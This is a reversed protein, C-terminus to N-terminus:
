SAAPRCIIALMTATASRVRLPNMEPSSEITMDGRVTMAQACFAVMKPPSRAKAKRTENRLLHSSISRGM